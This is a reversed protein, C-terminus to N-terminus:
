DGQGRPFGVPDLSPRIASYFDRLRNEAAARPAQGKDGLETSIRVAVGERPRAWRSQDLAILFRLVEDALGRTGETWDFVLRRQTGKGFRVVSARVERGDPELRVGWTEEVWWGSGPFATKPSFPSVERRERRGVGVFLRVAEGQRQYLRDIRARFLVIGLFELDTDLPSSTWGSLQKPVQSDPFPLSGRTPPEWRPLTVSLGVLVALVASATVLGPLASGDTGPTPSPATAARPVRHPLVRDLVGDILYLTLLGILLMAVGQLNHIAVIESHPNLILTLARLGNVGFSLVPAIAVLILGHLGRRHFLDVMLVSLMTLSEASRLGACTEIIAFKQGPRMIQDGAVSNLMGLQSLLFGSLEATWIQLKWLLQNLLPVPLKMAFLLFVTPLFLIRLAPAGWLLAGTGLLNLMLAPILLDTAGTYSAWAHIPISPLLLGLGLGFSTRRPLRRLRGWRRYLLWTAIVLVVVPGTSTSHFLLGEIEQELDPNAVDFLGRYALATLILALVALAAVSRDALRIRTV